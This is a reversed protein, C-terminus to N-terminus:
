REMEIESMRACLRLKPVLILELQVPGMQAAPVDIASMLFRSASDSIICHIHLDGDSHYIAHTRDYKKCREASHLPRLIPLCSRPLSPSPDCSNHPAELPLACSPFPDISGVSSTSGISLEPGAM